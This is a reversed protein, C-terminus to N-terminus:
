DTDDDESMCEFIETVFETEPEKALEEEQQQQSSVLDMMMEEELVWGDEDNGSLLSNDNKPAVDFNLGPKKPPPSQYFDDTNMNDHEPRKRQVNKATLPHGVSAPTTLAL